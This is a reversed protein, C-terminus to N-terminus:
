LLNGMMLFVSFKDPSLRISVHLIIKASYPSGFFIIDSEPPLKMESLNLVKQLPRFISCTNEDDYWWWLLPCTSAHIFNTFQVGLFDKSVLPSGCIARNCILIVESPGPSVLRVVTNNLQGILPM